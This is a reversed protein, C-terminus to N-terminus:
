RARPRMATRVLPLGYKAILSNMFLPEFGIVYAISGALSVKQEETLSSYKHLLARITRKFARGVHAEADSGLVIGTVKRRGRKSSHRTKSVNVRLGEPLELKPILDMVETEISRLVDPRETSFFLDDAYRSYNVGSKTCLENIRVDMDYCIANSLAPSTPSGITLTGNRCVLNCLVTIDRVNWEAFLAPRQEIYKRLDTQRISPFFNTLDMRLLYRSSRHVAANDFTTSDKRYAFAAPHVPLYEVVNALLWRQLAKLARSPHYITRYTGDRKPINYTKYEHSARRSRHEIFNATLGLERAMRELIM